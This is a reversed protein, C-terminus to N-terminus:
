PKAYQRSISSEVYSRILQWGTPEKRFTEVFLNIEKTPKEALEFTVWFVALVENDNVPTVFVEQFYWKPSQGSYSEFAQHWGNRAEDYGWDSIHNGPFAWRVQLEPSCFASMREADCNNWASQYKNFSIRFDSLLDSVSHVENVRNPTIQDNTV